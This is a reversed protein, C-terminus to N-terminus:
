FVIEYVILFKYMKNRGGLFHCVFFLCRNIWYRSLAIPDGPPVLPLSGAQWHLLDLLRLNFGQTLFIGRSFPMAVWELIRAQLIGHVSFGPPSCDMPDCLIPCSQLLKTHVCQPSHALVHLSWNSDIVKHFNWSWINFTNTSLSFVM